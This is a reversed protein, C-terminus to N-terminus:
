GQEAKHTPLVETFQYEQATTEEGGDGRYIVVKEVQYPKLKVVGEHDCYPCAVILQQGGTIEKFLTYNRQCNWCKFTFRKKM